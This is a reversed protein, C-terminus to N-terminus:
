RVGLVADCPTGFPQAGYVGLDGFVLQQNEAPDMWVLMRRGGDALWDAQKGPNGEKIRLRGRATRLVVASGDKGVEELEQRALAGQPGAYLRYDPGGAATGRAEDVFFFNGEGDRALALPQRIFPPAYYTAALLLAGRQRRPLARLALERDGCRVVAEEGRMAVLARGGPVRPDWVAVGYGTTEKEHRELVQQQFLKRGKGYFVPADEAGFPAVALFHGAGDAFVQLDSRIRLPVPISRELFAPLVARAPTRGPMPATPPPLAEPQAEPAPAPVLAAPVQVVAPTIVPGAAAAPAPPSPQAAAPGTTAPAPTTAAASPPAAPRPGPPFLEGVMAPLADLVDDITGGRLRRDSTALVQAKGPDLLKLHLLWSEGLRSLDGSVVREVGLAGGLEAFCADNQCGLMAKQQELSLLTTIERQTIVQAGSRHRVEATVSETLAEATKGPVGEGSTVPMVAVKLPAALALALLGALV